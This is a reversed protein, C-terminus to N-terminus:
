FAYPCWPALRTAFMADARAASGPTREEVRGAQALASPRVSGMYCSALDAVSIVLDAAERSRKVTAGEPGGDLEYRGHNWPCSRDEVELVLRGLSMYRRGELARAADLLRVWLAESPRRELRRPDTLMWPLPDDVPRKYAEILNILDVGFLYQWLAAHAADTVSMTEWVGLVGKRTRYAAYGEAVGGNRYVVHFFASAGERDREQDALVAEWSIQPRDISAPRGQIARRFVGPFLAAADTPSVFEVAGPSAAPRLFATHPRSIKWQEHFSGVGYGFRGYIISESAWLAAIPEGREHLDRLQYDMMQTMIGRRTHTPQVTVDEVAAAPMAGGEVGISCPVSSVGGVLESGQYAGVWRGPIFATAYRGIDEDRAHGGFARATARLYAPFEDQVIPRIDIDM